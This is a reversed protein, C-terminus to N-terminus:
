WYNHMLVKRLLPRHHKINYQELWEKNCECKCYIIASPSECKSSITYATLSTAGDKELCMSSYNSSGCNPCKWQEDLITDSSEILLQNQNTFKM